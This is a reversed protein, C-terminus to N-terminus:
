LEGLTFDDAPEIEPTSRPILRGDHVYRVANEMSMSSGFSWAADFDTKNLAAKYLSIQNELEPLSAPTVPTEYKRRLASAAAVLHVARITDGTTHTVMALTELTMAIGSRDSLRMRLDLAEILNLQAGAADEQRSKVDGLNHLAFATWAPQELDRFLALSREFATRADGLEGLDSAICGINNLIAASSDWDEITEYLQLAERLFVLAGERDGVFRRHRGLTNLCAAIDRLNGTPRTMELCKLAVENAASLDGQKELLLAFNNLVRAHGRPDTHEKFIELSQEFAERAGTVDDTRERLAGLGHFAAAREPIPGVDVLLSREILRIGSEIHGRLEWYRWLAATFRLEDYTGKVRDIAALLNNHEQDMVHMWARRESATDGPTTQTAWRLYYDAHKHSAELLIEQDAHTTAYERLSELVSFRRMEGSDRAVVLSRELLDELVQLPNVHGTVEGAAEVTFSGCFVPLSDFFHRVEQPLLAFSWDITEELTRHRRDRVQRTVLLKFRDELAELIQAPTLAHAHTAALEIALPVGELREAIRAIPGANRATLQFDPNVAQARDVFMQVCPFEFLARPSSASTPVALPMLQLVHEGNLGLPMRSTAVLRLDPLDELLGRVNLAVSPM